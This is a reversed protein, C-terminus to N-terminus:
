YPERDWAAQQAPVAEEHDSSRRPQRDGGGSLPFKPFTRVNESVHVDLHTIHGRKEECAGNRM